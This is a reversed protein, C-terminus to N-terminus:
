RPSSPCAAETEKSVRHAEDFVEQVVDEADEAQGLIRWDRGLNEVLWECMRRIMGPDDSYTPVILNGVVV